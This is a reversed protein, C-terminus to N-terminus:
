ALVIGVFYHVNKIKESQDNLCVLFIHKPSVMLVSVYKKHLGPFWLTNKLKFIDYIVTLEKQMM